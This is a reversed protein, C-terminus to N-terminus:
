CLQVIILFEFPLFVGHARQYQKMFEDNVMIRDLNKLVLCNPNKLSKTGKYHFGSSCIDEIELKNIIEHFEQMDMSRHSMGVSHEEVNLTANFDGILVWPHKGIFRKHDELDKWLSRREIGNNSAYVISYYFKIKNTITEVCCLIAQNSMNIVMVRVLNTNWGIMIRCCTPSQQVNSCWDWNGFVRIGVKDISKTKLHTEILACLQVKEDRILNMADKQKLENNIGGQIEEAILNEIAPNNVELVDNEDESDGDNRNLAERKYKLHQKMDYTWNKMEEEKPNQKRLIYWDVTIKDDYCINDTNDEETSLVDYKDASKKLNNMTDANVKSIMRKQNNQVNNTSPGGHNKPFYQRRRVETFMDKRGDNNVDESAMRNMGKLKSAENKMQFKCTKDSHGFVGCHVCLAKKADIEILIRAYGVRRSGNHCMHATTNDMMIPKGLMSALASIGRVSWAELPVNLLKIWIPIKCPESKKFNVDPDWKQVVLPKGNVMWPSQDIVYKMGEVTKFKFIRLDSGNAIIEALGYSGWM